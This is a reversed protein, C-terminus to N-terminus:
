KACEVESRTLDLAINHTEGDANGIIPMVMNGTASGSIRGRAGDPSTWVTYSGEFRGTVGMECQLREEAAGSYGGGFAIRADCGTGSGSLEFPKNIDCIVGAYTYPGVSGRANFIKPCGKKIADLEARAKKDAAVSGPNL